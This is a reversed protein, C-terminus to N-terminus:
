EDRLVQIPNIGAARLAPLAAAVLASALLAGIPPLFAAPDGVPVTGVFVSRLFMALPVALGLGLASGIM